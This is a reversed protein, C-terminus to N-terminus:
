WSLVATHIQHHFTKGGITIPQRLPTPQPSAASLVLFASTDRQDLWLQHLFRQGTRSRKPLWRNFQFSWQREVLTKGGHPDPRLAWHVVHLPGLVALFWEDHDLQNPLTWLQHPQDALLLDFGSGQRILAPFGKEKNTLWAVHGSLEHDSPLPNAYPDLRLWSLAASQQAIPVIRYLAIHPLPQLDYLLACNSGAQHPCNETFARGDHHYDVPHLPHSQLPYRTWFDSDASRLRHQLRDRALQVQTELQITTRTQGHAHLAPQLLALAGSIVLAGILLGALLEILSFAPHPPHHSM